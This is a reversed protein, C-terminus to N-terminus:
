IYEADPASLMMVVMAENLNVANPRKQYWIIICTPYFAVHRLHPLPVFEITNQTFLYFIPWESGTNLSGHLFTPNPDWKVAKHVNCGPNGRFVLTNWFGSGFETVLQVSELLLLNVYSFFLGLWLKSGDGSVFLKQLRGSISSELFLARWFCVTSKM